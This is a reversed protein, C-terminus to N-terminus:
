HIDFTGRAVSGLGRFLCLMEAGWGFPSGVCMFLCAPLCVCSYVCLHVCVYLSVCMELSFRHGTAGAEM